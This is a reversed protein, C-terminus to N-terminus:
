VNMYIWDVHIDIVITYLCFLFFPVKIIQSGNLPQFVSKSGSETLVSCQTQKGSRDSFPVHPLNKGGLKYTSTATTLVSRSASNDSSRFRHDMTSLFNYGAICIVYVDVFVLYRLSGYTCSTYIFYMFYIVCYMVICM